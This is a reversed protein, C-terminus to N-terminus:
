RLKGASIRDESKQRKSATNKHNNKLPHMNYQMYLNNQMDLADNNMHKESTRRELGKANDDEEDTNVYESSTRAQMKDPTPEENAPDFLQM